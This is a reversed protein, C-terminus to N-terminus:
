VAAGGTGIHVRGGGIVLDREEAFGPLKVKGPPRAIADEVWRGRSASAVTGASTHAPKSSRM